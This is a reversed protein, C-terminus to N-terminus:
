SITLKEKSFEKKRGRGNLGSNSYNHVECQMGLEDKTRM